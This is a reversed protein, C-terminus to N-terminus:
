AHISKCYKWSVYQQEMAQSKVDQFNPYEETTGKVKGGFVKVSMHRSRHGHQCNPGHMFGLVIRNNTLDMM